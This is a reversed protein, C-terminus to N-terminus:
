KAGKGGSASEDLAEGTLKLFIQELNPKRVDMSALPAGAAQMTNLIARIDETRAVRIKVSKHNNLEPKFGMKEIVDFTKEDASQLTLILDDANNEILQAPTDM